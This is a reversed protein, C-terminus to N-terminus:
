INKWLKCMPQCNKGQCKMMENELKQILQRMHRDSGNNEDLSDIHRHIHNTTETFSEGILVGTKNVCRVATLNLVTILQIM